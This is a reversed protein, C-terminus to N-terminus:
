PDALARAVTTSLVRVGQTSGPELGALDRVRQLRYDLTRPHIHLAAAARARNMDARYYADLTIILDPGATLRRAVERLWQDVQPLRAAGLEVFLDAATYVQHPKAQAPAARAVQRALALAETLAPARGHAAGVACPRGVFEAVDRALSLAREAPDIPHAEDPLLVLLEDPDNWTIPLWHRRLLAEVVEEGPLPAPRIPADAIRIVTLVTDAPLAIKLSRALEPAAADNALLMTVLLKVRSVAPLFREQGELYGRTYAGQAALGAPGLWAIAQMTADIDDPGAVEGLESLTLRSHLLLVRREAAL